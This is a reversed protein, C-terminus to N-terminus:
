NQYNENKEVTPEGIDNAIVFEKTERQAMLQFLFFRMKKKLKSYTCNNKAKSKLILHEKSTHTYGTPTRVQTTYSSAHSSAHTRAHPRAQTNNSSAHTVGRTLTATRKHARANILAKTGKQMICLM